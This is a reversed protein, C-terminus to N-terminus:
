VRNAEVQAAHVAPLVGTELVAILADRDAGPLPMAEIQRITERLPYAYEKLAIRGDEWVAYCALPRGTKSQGLSGPNVITTQGITRVFPTHTHGVILVDTDIGAVEAIWRESPEPCYGFLPDSPTSHVLHFRTSNVETKLFLPLDRLFKLDEKKCVELTYRLTEAALRKYPPSCQPDVSFGAAHDHNGRVALAAHRKVWQVTEHPRPGYDVLDGICWLQDFDQEPLAELAALNAHLDSVIVIKVFGGTKIERAGFTRLTCIEDLYGRLLSGAPVEGSTMMREDMEM